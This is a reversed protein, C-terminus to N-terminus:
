NNANNNELFKDIKKINYDIQSKLYEIKKIKSELNENLDDTLEELKNIKVALEKVKSILDM